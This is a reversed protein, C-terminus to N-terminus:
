KIQSLGDTTQSVIYRPRGKVEEYIRAVYEGIVGLALMVLSSTILLLLIVTSFGTVAEGMWYQYMTNAAVGLAFVFFVAGSLSILRLPATSFATVGKVALGLLAWKSWKSEGVEREAVEFAIQKREFGVWASMARFFVNREGLSRWAELVKRDLLKYDSAGSFDFGSLRGMVAYFVHAFMKSLFSESGRSVKVAEVIDADELKWCEIMKPILEPPHQMDADLLIVLDGDAYELGACIAQEKGFNRSLRLGTVECLLQSLACIHAWTEDQSGDDIVVIEFAMDVRQMVQYVRRISSDICAGENYAPIVLVAKTM